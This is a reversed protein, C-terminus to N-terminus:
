YISTLIQDTLILLVPIYMYVNVFTDHKFVHVHSEFSITFSVNITITINVNITVTTNKHGQEPINISINQLCYEQAQPWWTRSVGSWAPGWDGPGEDQPPRWLPSCPYRPRMCPSVSWDRYSHFSTSGRRETDALSLINTWM